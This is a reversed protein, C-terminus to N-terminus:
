PVTFNAASSVTGASTTVAIKGTTAGAPVVATIKVASNVVYSAGAGNFTVASAATFNAGNVVVSVGAGGTSPSFSTIRPGVVFSTASTATGGPTTVSIAGSTATAPVTATITTSSDVHFAAAVGNFRVATAGTFGSGSITVSAGALAGSPTFGGIAPKVLFNGASTGTGATTTVAVKGTTAGAPVTATIKTASNVTFPATAGNFTVTSAGTFNAGNITVSAGVIASSPSFSTVRPAVAFSNASTATGGPTTVTWPGSTANAPVTTTIQTPSSVTFAAPLGNLKVSTAGTFSTGTLVVSSGVGGSGPTFGGIAPVTNVTFSTPSLGTGAATTVGIKGTTAGAPVTATIKTASNVTFAAATGDFAVSSAGTFNAGNVTVSAGVVGGAPSFSTVRPAVTFSAASAATGGPSTVVSVPGTTANAPVTATIQATSDVHYTTAAVGNFRVASVGAVNAGAIVVSLGPAGSSPTLGTIRPAVTFNATSTATGAPTTVAIKGTTAGAPVGATIRTANVVTFTTATGNLKVATAGTFATGNITVTVGVAGTTPSFSTITPAVGVTFSTASTATGSNTTVAVPGTTAGAPVTATIETDSVVTFSASTGDFTVSFATVLGTGGITVSSGVAGASPTLSTITPAPPSSVATDRTALNNAAVPDSVSSAVTARASITTEFFPTVALTATASASAAISGLDCRLEASFGDNAVACSGQSSSTAGISVSGAPVRHILRVGTATSAGGNAVTLTYTMPVGVTGPDPSVGITVSLDAATTATDIKAVFADYNGAWSGDLPNVLPFNDSYSEGTVYTNGSADVFLGIGYDVSSGGLYTSFDLATGTANVRAVFADVFGTGCGMGCIPQPANAMPFDTSDTWGTVHARGSSDVGISLGQEDSNGGLYTSYVLSAAGAAAPNLKAVYADLRGFDCAGDSGCARDFAGTTTPFNPSSTHGTVYVNNSGDRAIGLGREDGTGGLYTAYLLASGTANLRAVFADVGGGNSAQFAALAGMPLDTSATRGIITAQGSGDVVVGNGGDGGSGGLYTSYVLSAAGSATTDIKAVFADTDGGGFTSQLPTGATPLNTSRTRGVMYVNGSGDLAVGLGLENDAGGLYTSYLLNSGTADLKTLFADSRMEFLEPRDVGGGFTPQYASTTTPFDTSATLGTVYANGAGDVALGLGLDYGTGGLYTSYILATGAPNLKTVFADYDGVQTGQYPSGATPFEPSVTLGAIYIGSADVVIASGNDEGSGGLYTSYVLVPDIVLSRTRDYAGVRFAVRDGSIAYGGEVSRRGGAIDQYIVPRRLRMEGERTRVILDGGVDLAIADAGDFSWAIAGPDAGPAVVFDHELQRGHGYYVLDIGPYIADYRVKAYTPIETRWGSPDRGVLYSVRGVQEEVGRAVAAPQAGALTMRVRAREIPRVVDREVPGRPGGRRDIVIEVGDPQLSVVYGRGRALFQTPASAQGRNPEFSLPIQGFSPAPLPDAAALRFSVCLALCAVAALWRAGRASMTM